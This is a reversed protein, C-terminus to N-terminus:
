RQRHRISGEWGRLKEGLSGVRYRKRNAQVDKQHLDLMNAFRADGHM